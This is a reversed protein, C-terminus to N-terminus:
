WVNGPSMGLLLHILQRMCIRMIKSRPLPTSNMHLNRGYKSSHISTRLLCRQAVTFYTRWNSNSRVILPRGIAQNHHREPRRPRAQHYPIEMYIVHFLQCDSWINLSNGFISLNVIMGNLHPHEIRQSLPRGPDDDPLPGTSEIDSIHADGFVDDNHRNEQANWRERNITHNHTNLHMARIHHTHGHQSKFMSPCGPHPCPLNRLSPQM